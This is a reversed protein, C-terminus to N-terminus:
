SRAWVLVESPIDDHISISQTTAFGCREYLRLASSNDAGAVVKATECGRRTLEELAYHLVRSAYGQGAIRQDAVVALIEAQPLAGTTSPYRLTELVHPVARILRPASRLGAIVGDRTMFEAYFRRVNEAAACFTIVDREDEAVVAFANDSRAVRRYLSALFTPGLSALFGESIRETHLHALRTADEVTAFRIDRNV